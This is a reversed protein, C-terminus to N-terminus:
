LEGPEVVLRYGPGDTEIRGAGLRKRLAHVQVQLANRATRRPQDGWLAAILHDRSVVENAHLLLCAVLVPKAATGLAIPGGDAVDELPGLVRFETAQEERSDRRAPCSRITLPTREASPSCCIATASSTGSTATSSRPKTPVTSCSEPRPRASCRW